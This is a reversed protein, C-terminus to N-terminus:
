FKPSKLIRSLARFAEYYNHKARVRGSLAFICLINYSTWIYSITFYKYKAKSKM